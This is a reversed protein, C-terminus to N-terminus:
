AFRMAVQRHNTAGCDPWCTATVAACDAFTRRPPREDNIRGITVIFNHLMSHHPRRWTRLTLGIRSYLGPFGSTITQLLIMLRLADDDSQQSGLVDQALATDM